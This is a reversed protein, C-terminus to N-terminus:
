FPSIRFGEVLLQLTFQGVGPPAPDDDFTGDGYVAVKGEVGFGGGESVYLNGDRVSLGQVKTQGLSAEDAGAQTTDLDFNPLGGLVNQVYLTSTFTISCVATDFDERSAAFFVVAGLSDGIEGVTVPAVFMREEPNFVREFEFATVTTNETDTDTDIWARFKFGGPPIPARRDGGSGAMVIVRNPQFIDKMLEVAATIPHDPGMEALINMTWNVPDPDFTNLKWVRGHLDPIYVRTVFDKNDASDEEHPNYLTPTAPLANPGIAASSDSTVAARHYLFGDETRFAFLFRGETASNNCGYGGGTFVLSQDIRSGTDSPSSRTDVNGLVPVSWTEGLGDLPGDNIGERNGRNWLLRLNQPSTAADTFDLATMFRGGRGRGLAVVTHWQDDAGHDARLFVDAVNPAASLMYRHNIVNNNNNVVLQVFDKLTDRSGALEGPAISMADDPIYGFSEAGTEADFVHLIGSNSPYLVITRRNFHDWFFGDGAIAGGVGYDASHNLPPDFDPSRPPSGIVAVGGATSEYLKWTPEGNEDLLSFNLNGSSDYPSGTSPDLVLRYGRMVQVVIDRADDDTLAGLYGASVGLDSPTVTSTNFPLLTTQNRRNFFLVRADPDDDQLEEGADWIQTFDAERATRPQTVDTVRYINTAKLHGRFGPVEVSSEFLVNDRHDARAIRATRIDADNSLDLPILDTRAIFPDTHSAVVEKVSTVIPAGLTVETEPIGIRALIDELDDALSAGGGDAFFPGPMLSRARQPVLNAGAAMWAITGVRAQAAPDTGLDFGIVFVNGKSGDLAPDVQQLTFEGKLGANFAAYDQAATSSVLVDPNVPDPRMTVPSRLPSVGDGPYGGTNCECTDEGDTIQIIFNKQNPLLANVFNTTNGAVTGDGVLYSGLQSFAIGIPTTGTAPAANLVTRVDPRSDNGCSGPNVFSAVNLGVCSGPSDPYKDNNTDPPIAPCRSTNANNRGYHVFGWNVLPRGAGDVLRDMVLNLADKAQQIKPPGGSAPSQGMSGSTDLLLWVNHRIGSNLVDLPDQGREILCPSQTHGTESWAFALVLSVVALLTRKLAQSWIKM